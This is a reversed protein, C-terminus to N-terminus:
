VWSAEKEDKSLNKYQKCTYEQKRNIKIIVLEPFIYIYFFLRLVKERIALIM